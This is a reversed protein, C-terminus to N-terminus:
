TNLLFTEIALKFAEIADVRSRCGIAFVKPYDPSTTSWRDGRRDFGIRYKAM